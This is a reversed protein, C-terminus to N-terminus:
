IEKIPVETILSAIKLSIDDQYGESKLKEFVIKASEPTNLKGKDIVTKDLVTALDDKTNTRKEIQYLIDKESKNQNIKPLEKSLSTYKTSEFTRSSSQNLSFSTSTTISPTIDKIFDKEFKGKDDWKDVDYLKYFIDNSKYQQTIPTLGQKSRDGIIDKMPLSIPSVGLIKILGLINYTMPHFIVVWVSNFYPVNIYKEQIVKSIPTDTFKIFGKKASEIFKFWTEHYKFMHANNSEIFNIDFDGIYNLRTAYNLSRNKTSASEYEINMQPINIDTALFGNNRQFESINTDSKNHINSQYNIWTGSVMHIYYNGNIFPNFDKYNHSRNKNIYTMIDKNKVTEMQKSIYTEIISKHLSRNIM